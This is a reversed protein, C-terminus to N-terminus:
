MAALISTCFPNVAVCPDRCSYQGARASSEEIPRCSSWLGCRAGDHDRGASSLGADPFRRLLARDAESSHRTALRQHALRDRHVSPMPSPSCSISTFNDWRRRLTDWRFFNTPFKLRNCLRFHSTTGGTPAVSPRFILPKSCLPVCSGIGMENPKGRLLTGSGGGGSGSASM